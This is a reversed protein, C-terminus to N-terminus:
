APWHGMLAHLNSYYVGYLSLKTGDTFTFRSVFEMFPCKHGILAHSDPYLSWLPVTTDWKPALELILESQKWKTFDATKKVKELVLHKSGNQLTLHKNVKKFGATQKCKTFDSKQKCKRLDYQKSVLRFDATQKHIQM